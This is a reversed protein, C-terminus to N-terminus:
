KQSVQSVGRQKQGQPKMNPYNSWECDRLKRQNKCLNSPQNKSIVQAPTQMEQWGGLRANEETARAHERSAGYGTMIQEQAPTESYVTDGM